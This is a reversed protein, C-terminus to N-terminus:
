QKWSGPFGGFPLGNNREINSFRSRCGSINKPCADQVWLSKNSEPNEGVTGNKLCIYFSSGNQPNEYDTIKVYDGKNYTAGGSYELPSGAKISSFLGDDGTFPNGKGDTKPIGSYGCGIPSRYMWQCTNYVIKRNPLFANEKELPSSLEFSIINNNEQTKQNIIYNEHPFSDETPTGFPNINNPFNIGHLFKVFTRIRTVKYGIFDDFFRTKLGFFGDSNDFTLTPRPFESNTSTFGDASFPVYFYENAGSDYYISKQYGNEGSHFYYNNGRSKQSLSIRFLTIIASPNEAFVEKSISSKM